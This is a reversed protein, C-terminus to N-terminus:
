MKGLASIADQETEEQLMIIPKVLILLIQKDKVESRNSFLRGLVPLKSLIPVGSERESEGTLTLGGLMVTGRDPVSVRTQISSQRTTPLTFSDELIEGGQIAQVTVPTADLLDTLYTTIRLIVYKKDATITPTISMQVGTEIEETEREWYSQFLPVDGVGVSESVLSSSSVIRRESTVSMTASEGNMVVAKPSTLQKSNKHMQTARIIFGVQLDDLTGWSSNIGLAPFSYSGALSSPVNTSDAPPVVHPATNQTITMM